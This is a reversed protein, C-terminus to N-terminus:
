PLSYYKRLMWESGLLLLVVFFWHMSRVPFSYNEVTETQTKMINAVRLSDWLSGANQYNFFIGGSNNAIARLLEDNRITNTLESSSNSVLFEGSQTELERSGKRATATYQYLGESLRPLDLRYNGNGSNEMNFTRSTGQASELQVEIIGEDEPDGRENLLSGNIIPTEATSFTQKAPAIRLKRNDPDSSTWSILNSMLTAGYERHLPNTSQLMRFWGWPLVHARRINGRELVAIAPYETEVGDFNIGFLANSQLESLESRLPSKLPTIDSLNIEPLELIPQEDPTLLPRFSIQSVQNTRINILQVDRRATFKNRIEPAVEFLVTPIEELNNLFSFERNTNPVGHIVILNFEDEEPLDEVFRNGGLWTLTTLENNEDSKIISRIAKVDPHIQFAVHLIKVKSDLVDISFLRSNNSDTWEDPLPETRIEFQQLGTEQLELEFQVKKVQDETDFTVQQEQLVEGDGSLLSVLITNNQFGSQTIEADIIHNTNTYGTTNTLINSVSIDRVKSTDGIGITYLPISSNFANISPNRGYTIIGDTILVAAQVDQEMELVSQMPESLNTQTESANLSDPSFESVSEGMSYFNFDAQDIADFNLTNLLNRYSNLGDYKGKTIGISESNDLFVAINPKIEVERSSYFYPNLLLLLILTLALGRLTILGWRSLAPISEFKRYSAWSLVLLGVILLVIVAAPLIHQFGQFDM